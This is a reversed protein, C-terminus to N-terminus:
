REAYGGAGGGGAAAHAPPAMFGPAFGLMVESVEFSGSQQVPADGGGGAGDGGGGGGGDGAGEYFDLPLSLLPAPAAKVHLRPKRAEDALAAARAASPSEHATSIQQM